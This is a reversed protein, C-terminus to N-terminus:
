RNMWLLLLLLPIITIITYSIFITIMGHTPAATPSETDIFADVECLGEILQFLAEEFLDRNEDFTPFDTDLLLTFEVM